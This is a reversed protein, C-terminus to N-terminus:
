SMTERQQEAGLKNYRYLVNIMDGEVLELDRIMEISTDIKENIQTQNQRDIEFKNLNQITRKQLKDCKAVITNLLGTTMAQNSRQSEANDDSLQSPQQALALM